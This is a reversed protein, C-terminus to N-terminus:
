AAVGDRTEAAEAAIAMCEVQVDWGDSRTRRDLYALFRVTAVYPVAAFLGALAFASGGWELRGLPAGLQLVFDVIGRNGIAEFVLVFAVWHVWLLTQLWITAALDKSVLRAARSLAAMPGAQELLSAEHVHAVRSAAWLVPFVLWAFLGGIAVVIWSLVLTTLYSPFRRAFEGLVTRVRVTEAFMLQSAALTFIGGTLLTMGFAVAWVWAWEVELGFRLVMVLSWAPVLVWWALRRYVPWAHGTSFRLGLDFLEWTSRPRLIVNCAKLDV